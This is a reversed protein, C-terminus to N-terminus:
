LMGKRPMAFIIFPMTEMFIASSMASIALPWKKLPAPLSIWWKKWRGFSFISLYNSSLRQPFSVRKGSSFPKGEGLGGDKRFPREKPFPSDHVTHASGFVSMRMNGQPSLLFPLCADLRMGPASAAAEAGKTM